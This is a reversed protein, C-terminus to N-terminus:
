FEEPCDLGSKVGFSPCSTVLQRRPGSRDLWRSEFPKDRRMDSCRQGPCPGGRKGWAKMGLAMGGESGLFGEARHSLGQRTQPELGLGRFYVLAKWMLPNILDQM